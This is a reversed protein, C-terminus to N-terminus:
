IRIDRMYGGRRRCNFNQQENCKFKTCLYRYIGPILFVSHWMKKDWILAKYGM